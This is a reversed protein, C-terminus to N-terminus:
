LSYAIPGGQLQVRAFLQAGDIAKSFYLYRQFGRYILLSSFSFLHFQVGGGGGGEGGVLVM